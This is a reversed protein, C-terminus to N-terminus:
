IYVSNEISHIIYNMYSEEVEEEEEEAEMNVDDPQSFVFLPM